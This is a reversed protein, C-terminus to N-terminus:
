FKYIVSGRQQEGSDIVINSLISYRLAFYCTLFVFVTGNVPSKYLSSDKGETHKLSTYSEVDKLKNTVGVQQM